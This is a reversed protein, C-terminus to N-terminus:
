EVIEKRVHNPYTRELGAVYGNIYDESANNIRFTCLPPSNFGKNEIVILYDKM